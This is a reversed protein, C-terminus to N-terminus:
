ATFQHKLPFHRGAIPTAGRLNAPVAANRTAPLVVCAMCRMRRWYEHGAAVGEDVYHLVQLWKAGDRESPVAVVEASVGHMVGALSRGRADMVLQYVEGKPTTLTAGQGSRGIRGSVTVQGQPAEAGLAMALAALFAMNAMLRYRAM